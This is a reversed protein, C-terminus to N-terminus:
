RHPSRHSSRPRLLSNGSGNLRNYLIIKTNKWPAQLTLMLAVPLTLLQVDRGGNKALLFDLALHHDMAMEAVSSLSRKMDKFNLGFKDSTEEVMKTLNKITEYNSIVGYNIGVLASILNTIGV